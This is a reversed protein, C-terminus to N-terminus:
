RRRVRIAEGFAAVNDVMTQMAGSAELGTTDGGLLLLVKVGAAHAINNLEPEIRSDGSLCRCHAPRTSRCVRM